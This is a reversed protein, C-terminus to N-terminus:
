FESMYEKYRMVYQYSVNQINLSTFQHVHLYWVKMM